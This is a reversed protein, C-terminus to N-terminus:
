RGRLYRGFLLTLERVLREGFLETSASMGVGESAGVLVFAALDLDPVRLEARHAELLRRVQDMVRQRREAVRRRLLANPVQELRRALEPGHPMAALVETFCRRLAPELPERPDPEM